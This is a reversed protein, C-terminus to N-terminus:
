ISGVNVCTKGLQVGVGSVDAGDQQGVPMVIMGSARLGTTASTAAVPIISVIACVQSWNIRLVSLQRAEEAPKQFVFTGLTTSAVIDPMGDGHM